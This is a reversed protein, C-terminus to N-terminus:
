AAETISEGHYRGQCGILALFKIRAHSSVRAFTQSKSLSDNNPSMRKIDNGAERNLLNYEEAM